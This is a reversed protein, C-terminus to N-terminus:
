SAYSSVCYFYTVAILVELGMFVWLALQDIRNRRKAEAKDRFGMVLVAAYELMAFFVLLICLLMWTDLCTM